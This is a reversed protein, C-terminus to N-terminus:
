RDDFVSTEVSAAGGIDKYIEEGAEGGGSARSVVIHGNGARALFWRWGDHPWGGGGMSMSGTATRGPTKAAVDGISYYTYGAPTGAHVAPAMSALIVAVISWRLAHMTGGWRRIWGSRRVFHAVFATQGCKEYEM